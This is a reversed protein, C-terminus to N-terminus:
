SSRSAEGAGPSRRRGLGRNRSPRLSIRLDRAPVESWRETRVLAGVIAGAAAGAAGYIFAFLDRYTVGMRGRM